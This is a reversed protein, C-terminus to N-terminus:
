VARTAAQRIHIVAGDSSLLSGELVARSVPEAFINGQFADCGARKLLEVQRPTEVGEAVVTVGLAHGLTVISGLVTMADTDPALGDLFEQAIKLEDLKFRQLYVLSSYGTGFDDLAIRVGMARLADLRRRAGEPDKVLVSETIELTLREPALGTAQVASRVSAIVDDNRFQAPSLNVAVGIDSKWRAADACAARLVRESLAAILGSEEAIPVFLSPMVKRGAADTFRALAEVGTVRNTKACVKPQYLVEIANAEIAQRLETEVRRRYHVDEDMVPEFVTVRSRGRAKAQYLALDARRMLEDASTGHEPAAAIGVSGPLTIEVGDILHPEGLAGLLAAGRSRAADLDGKALLVVFEDGGFRAVTEDPFLRAIRRAVTRLVADGADHGWIDNVDKFRDLDVFMVAVGDSGRMALAEGLRETLLRRNALGTLEDHRAERRTLTLAQTSRRIFRFVLVAAASMVFFIMLAFPLLREFLDQLHRQTRWHFTAIRQGSGNRLVLEADEPMARAPWGSLSMRDILVSKSLDALFAQDVDYVSVLLTYRSASVRVTGFDPLIPAVVLYVPRGDVMAFAAADYGRSLNRGVTVGEAAPRYSAARARVQAVLPAAQAAVVAYSAAPLKVGKANAYLPQDGADLVFVRDARYFSYLWQGINEDVWAEDYRAATNEVAEDWFTVSTLDGRLRELKLDLANRAQVEEREHSLAVYYDASVYFTVVSAIVTLAVLGALAVVVGATSRATGRVLDLVM